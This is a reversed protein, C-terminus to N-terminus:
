LPTMTRAPLRHRRVSRTAPTSLSAAAPQADYLLFQLNAKLAALLAEIESAFVAGRRHSAPSISFGLNRRRSPSGPPSADIVPEVQVFYAALGYLPESQAAESLSRSVDRSAHLLQEM